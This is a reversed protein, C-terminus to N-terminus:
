RFKSKGNRYRHRYRSLELISYSLRQVEATLGRGKLDINPLEVEAM